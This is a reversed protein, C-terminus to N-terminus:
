QELGTVPVAAAQMIEGTEGNQLLGVLHLVKLELPKEDFRNSNDVEAKALEKALRLKLKALDVEGTFSLQGATAGVGEVGAPFARVIMEHFRIGNPAQWETRDEVLVLEIRANAPFTSLGLAKASIAIKGKNATASLDLKLSIKEDLVPDIEARLRRYIEPAQAMGGSLLPLPRGNLVLTPTGEGHYMEFRTKTEENALPDPRPVNEHYRLVILESKEYTAELALTAVDAAVCPNCAGGTFLECVAVRSGADDGARPPRKEAAISRIRSEYIEDLYASLGQRNGHKQTWLRTVIRRPIEDSPMKRGAAKMSEALQHEMQPLTTLEAFLELAEDLRGEKEALRALAFAAEPQFPFEERAKKLLALGEETRDAAILRKGREVEVIERLDAPTTEDFHEEATTLYELALDPLQDRRSLSLGMSCYALLELRPGWVAASKVFGQGLADFKERDYGHKGALSTLDAYAALALPSEPHRRVFKLLPGFPDEQQSADAYEERAPDAVPEGYSSMSKAESPVLRAPLLLSRAALLNGRVEGNEFRGRFDFSEGDADVRIRVEPGSVSAERLTSAHIVRASSLLKVATGQNEDPSFEILWLYEDSGHRSQVVVWKGTLSDRKPGRREVPQVDRSGLDDLQALPVEEVVKGDILYQAKGERVPIETASLNLWGKGDPNKKLLFLYQQGAVYKPYQKKDGGNVIPALASKRGTGRIARNIEVLFQTGPPADIPLGERGGRPEPTALLIREAQAAEAMLKSEDPEDGARSGAPTMAAVECALLFALAGKAWRYGNRM